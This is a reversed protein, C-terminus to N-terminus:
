IGALSMKSKSVWRPASDITQRLILNLQAAHHQVHRMNYMLLEAVTIGPRKTGCDQSVSKDTLADVARRCKERGHKLYTLLEEKTYVRPPLVGAPDLEELGFPAPPTFGEISDSMYFDLFFLTHFAIYWFESPRTQDGWVKQPCAIMANELMDISAGYQQWIITKWISDM